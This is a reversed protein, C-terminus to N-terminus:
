VGVMNVMQMRSRSNNYNKLATEVLGLQNVAMPHEAKKYVRPIQTRKTEEEIAKEWGFRPNKHNSLASSYSSLTRNPHHRRFGQKIAFRGTTFALAQRQWPTLDTMVDRGAEVSYRSEQNVINGSLEDELEKTRGSM